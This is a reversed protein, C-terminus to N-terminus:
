SSWSSECPPSRGSAVLEMTRARGADSMEAPRLPAPALSAPDLGDATSIDSSGILVAGPTPRASRARAGEPAWGAAVPFPLSALHRWAALYPAPDVAGDNGLFLM